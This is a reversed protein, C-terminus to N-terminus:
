TQQCFQLHHQNITRGIIKWRFGTLLLSTILLELEIYIFNSVEHEVVKRAEDQWNKAHPNGADREAEQEKEGGWALKIYAFKYYPHLVLTTATLKMKSSCNLLEGLALIYSPKQDFRSYYKKLKELGDNIADHYM